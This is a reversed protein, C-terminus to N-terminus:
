VKSEASRNWSESEAARSWVDSEVDGVGSEWSFLGVRFDRSRVEVECGSEVVEVGSEWSWM